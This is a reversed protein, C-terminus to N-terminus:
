QFHDGDIDDDLLHETVELCRSAFARMTRLDQATRGKEALVENSQRIMKLTLEPSPRGFFIQYGIPIWAFSFYEEGVMILQGAMWKSNVYGEGAVQGKGPFRILGKTGWQKSAAQSLQIPALAASGSHFSPRLDATFSIEGKPVNKDGTVKTAILTDGVYTVNIMEYGHDGYKGVWLGDINLHPLCSRIRKAEQSYTEADEQRHELRAQEALALAQGYMYEADRVLLTKIEMFLESM